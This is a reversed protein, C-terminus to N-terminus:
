SLLKLVPMLLISIIQLGKISTLINKKLKFSTKLSGLKRVSEKIKELLQLPKKSLIINKKLFNLVVETILKIDKRSITSFFHRREAQTYSKIKNFLNLIDSLNNKNTLNKKFKDQRDM